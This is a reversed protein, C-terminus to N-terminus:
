ESSVTFINWSSADFAPKASYCTEIYHPSEPGAMYAPRFAQVLEM